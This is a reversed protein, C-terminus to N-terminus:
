TTRLRELTRQRLQHRLRLLRSEVAKDTLGTKIAIEKVTFGELYKAEIFQRDEPCLEDISEQLLAQLANEDVPAPDSDARWARAFRELLALYRHQKRGADRAASRALAKLWCWFAEESDFVRAYRVVRLLTQQLAEQAEDERGHAVVLLFQYLRDFYRAHFVGFARDEGAVLGRTLLAVDNLPCPAPHAEVAKPAIQRLTLLSTTTTASV